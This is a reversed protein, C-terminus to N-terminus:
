PPDEARERPLPSALVDVLEDRRAPPVIDTLTVAGEPLDLRIANVLPEVGRIESREVEWLRDKRSRLKVDLLIVRRDTVALLGPFDLTAGALREVREAPELRDPLGEVAAGLGFSMLRGLKRRALDRIEEVSAADDGRLQRRATEVLRLLEEQPAAFELALTREGFALSVAQPGSRVTTLDRWEFRENRARGFVWPRRALRVGRDSAAVVWGRRKWVAIAAAELREGEVLEALARVDRGAGTAYRGLRNRIETESKSSRKV